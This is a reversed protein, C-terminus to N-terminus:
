FKQTLESLATEFKAGYWHSPDSLTNEMSKVTFDAATRISRSLDGTKILAGSFASAFIDGTGHLNQPLRRHRYSALKKGGKVALIGLEDGLPIGKLVVTAFYRESLKEILGEIEGEGMGERYPVDALLCAETLNPLLYDARACLKKMEEVYSQDFAPYLAGYDAMAPDVILPANEKLLSPLAELLLGIQPVSGLYGTYIADFLIGEKKWQSFIAPFEKTLDLCTFGHFGKATHNSLLATPLICTEIGCASLIPLAVTLSCQGVCSIDQVTLVRQYSNKM